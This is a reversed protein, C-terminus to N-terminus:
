QYHLRAKLSSATALCRGQIASYNNPLQTHTALKVIKTM